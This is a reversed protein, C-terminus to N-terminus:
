SGMHWVYLLLGIGGGAAVLGLGAIGWRELEPNAARSADCWGLAYRVSCQLGVGLLVLGFAGGFALRGWSPRFTEVLRGLGGLAEGPASGQNHPDAGDSEM